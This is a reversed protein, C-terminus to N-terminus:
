QKLPHRTAFMGGMYALPIVPIWSVIKFWMPYPLTVFQMVAMATLLAGTVISTLAGKEGKVTISTWGGVWGSAGSSIILAILSALPMNEIYQRLQEAQEPSPSPPPAFVAETIAEILYTTAWGGIFGAIVSITNKFM